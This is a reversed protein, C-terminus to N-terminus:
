DRDGRPRGPIAGQRERIPLTDLALADARTALAYVWRGTDLDLDERVREREILYGLGTVVAEETWGLAAAIREVGLPSAATSLLAAIRTARLAHTEPSALSPRAKSAARRAIVASGLALGLLPPLLTCLALFASQALLAPLLAVAGVVAAVGLASLWWYASAPWAPLSIGLLQYPSGERDHAPRSPEAPPAHHAFTVGSESDMQIDGVNLKM